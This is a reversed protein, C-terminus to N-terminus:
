LYAMFLTFTDDGTYAAAAKKVVRGSAMVGPNDSEIWVLDGVNLPQQLCIAHSFDVASSKLSLMLAYATEVRAPVQVQAAYTAQGHSDQGTRQQITITDNLLNSVDM